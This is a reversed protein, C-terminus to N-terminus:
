ADLLATFGGGLRRHGQAEASRPDSLDPGEAHGHAQPGTHAAEHTTTPIRRATDHLAEWITQADPAMTASRIFPDRRALDSLHQLAHAAVHHGHLSRPSPHTPDASTVVAAGDLPMFEPTPPLPSVTTYTLVLRAGDWRWSTSHCVPAAGGVHRALEWAVDDPDRGDPLPFHTTTWTFGGTNRDLALTLVEVVVEHRSETM